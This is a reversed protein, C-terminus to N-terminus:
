QSFRVDVVVTQSVKTGYYDTATCTVNYQTDPDTTAPFTHSIETEPDSDDTVLPSSDGFDWVRTIKGAGGSVGSFFTGTYSPNTITKPSYTINLSLPLLPNSADVPDSSSSYGILEVHVIASTADGDGAWRLSMFDGQKMTAFPAGTSSSLPCFDSNGIDILAGSNVSLVDDFVYETGDKQTYVIGVSPANECTSISKTRITFGIPIFVRDPFNNGFLKLDGDNVIDWDYAHALVRISKSEDSSNASDNFVTYM